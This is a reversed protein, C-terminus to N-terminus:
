EFINLDGWATRQVSKPDQCDYCKKDYILTARTAPEYKKWTDTGPTNPNGTRAFNIWEQQMQDSIQHIKKRNSLLLIKKGLKTNFTNFVFPVELAHCARLGVWKLPESTWDFRYMYTNAYASQFEAFRISPMTFIGDTLLDLIGAKTPYEKYAGIIQKQEAPKFRALYPKLQEENVPLMSLKKRAFLNAENRNTGILLGVGKSQGNKIATLLDYPLFTGDVTPACTKPLSPDAIMIKMLRMMASMLTDVPLLKLKYLSDPTVGLEKLYLTTVKTALQPTWVDGAPGSEIIARKFLGQASPLAMLTEVSIGGASEGFITVADPDGGFAAINEKVWKLAAVQDKIGLNDDFKGKSGPLNNFYMFGLPGLRYNITVVVVDGRTAINTGDYMDSSGSGGVFGGGHLWVMVPRKKGDAAPSWVNLFLCDENQLENGILIKKFQPAVAGFTTAEKIGAWNDPAQPDRFRLDGVPAKAYRIGKWVCINKEIDGKIQGQSTKVLLGEPHADPVTANVSYVSLLLCCISLVFSKTSLYKM